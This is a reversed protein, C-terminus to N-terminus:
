YEIRRKRMGETPKRKVSHYPKSPRLKKIQENTLYREDLEPDYSKEGDGEGLLTMLEFVEQETVGSRELSQGLKDSWEEALTRANQPANSFRDWDRYVQQVVGIHRLVEERSYFMDPVKFADQSM